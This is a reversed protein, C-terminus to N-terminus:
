SKILHGVEYYVRGIKYFGVQYFIVDPSDDGIDFWQEPDLFMLKNKNM